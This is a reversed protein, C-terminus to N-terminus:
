HVLQAAVPGHLVCTARQSAEVDHPVNTSHKFPHPSIPPSTSAQISAQTLPLGSPADIKAIACFQWNQSHGFLQLLKSMQRSTSSHSSPVTGVTSSGSIQSEQTIHATAPGQSVDLSAHLADVSHSSKVLQSIWHTFSPPM